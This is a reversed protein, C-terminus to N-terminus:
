TTRLLQESLIHNSSLKMYGLVFQLSLQYNQSTVDLHSYKKLHLIMIHANTLAPM